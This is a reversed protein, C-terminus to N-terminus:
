RCGKSRRGLSPKYSLLYRQNILPEVALGCLCVQPVRFVGAGQRIEDDLRDRELAGSLGEFRPEATLEAFAEHVHPIASVSRNVRM